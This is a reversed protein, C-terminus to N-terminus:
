SSSSIRKFHNKITSDDIVNSKSNKRTVDWPSNDAHSMNSLQIASYKGYVEWIRELFSWTDIDSYPVVLPDNSELVGFSGSPSQIQNAGYIRFENYLSRVVPGYTWAEVSESLLPTQRLALHWGHAYYVLKQLKMPTLFQDNKQAIMIFSNAIQLPHYTM